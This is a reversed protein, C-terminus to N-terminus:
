GGAVQGFTNRAGSLGAQLSIVADAGSAAARERLDDVALSWATNAKVGISDM